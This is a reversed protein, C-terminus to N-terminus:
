SGSLQLAAMKFNHLIDFVILGKIKSQYILWTEFIEILDTWNNKRSEILRTPVMENEYYTTPRPILLKIEFLITM